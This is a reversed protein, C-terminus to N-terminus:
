FILLVQIYKGPVPFILSLPPVSAYFDSFIVSVEMGLLKLAKPQFLLLVYFLVLGQRIHTKM